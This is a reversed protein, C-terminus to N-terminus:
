RRKQINLDNVWLAEIVVLGLAAMANSAFATARRTDIEVMTRRQRTM